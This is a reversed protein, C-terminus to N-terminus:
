TEEVELVVKKVKSNEIRHYATVVQYTIKGFMLYEGVSIPADADIEIPAHKTGDFYIIYKM